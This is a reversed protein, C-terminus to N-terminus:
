RRSRRIAERTEESLKIEGRCGACRVSKGQLALSLANESLVKRCTPCAVTRVPQIKGLPERM